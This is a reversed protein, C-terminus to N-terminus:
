CNVFDSAKRVLLSTVSDEKNFTPMSKTVSAFLFFNEPLLAVILSTPFLLSAQPVTKGLLLM